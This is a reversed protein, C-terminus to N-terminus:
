PINMIYMANVVTTASADPWAGGTPNDPYKRFNGKTPDMKGDIMTDLAIALDTPIGTLYLTNYNRNDTASHLYYLYVTVTQAGSYKGKFLFQGSKSTNSVPVTLGVKKLASDINGTGGGYVNDFRGNEITATGGNATSDGLVKGTRDYYNDVALEWAKLAKTYFKKQKASQILDQGKVVAGIILGIIVLVIAMEILTFGKDSCIIKNKFGTRENKSYSSHMM